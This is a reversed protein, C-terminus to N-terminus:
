FLMVELRREICKRMDLSRELAGIFYSFVIQKQVGRAASQRAGLRKQKRM